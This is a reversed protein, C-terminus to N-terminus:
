QTRRLSDPPPEATIEIGVRWDIQAPHKEMEQLFGSTVCTVRIDEALEDIPLRSPLHVRTM